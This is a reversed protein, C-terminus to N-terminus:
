LDDESSEWLGVGCTGIRRSVRRWWLKRSFRSLRKLDLGSNNELVTTSLTFNMRSTMEQCELWIPWTTEWLHSSVVVVPFCFEKSQGRKEYIETFMFGFKGCISSLGDSLITFINLTVWNLSPCCSAELGPGWAKSTGGELPLNNALM